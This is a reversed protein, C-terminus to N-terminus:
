GEERWTAGDRGLMATSAPPGWTGAAYPRPAEPNRELHELVPALWSWAAELEDGRTFLTLQNRLVDMLLREYAEMRSAKFTEHFDLALGVQRLRMGEGPVKVMLSLNLGEDPQLRILLANPQATESMSPFISHPLARFRVLIEAVREPMRKGTRLFFPVGAWRWTNIEAKLAVYTETTSEAAVGTEEHYGPVRQGGINGARYAGRILRTAIDQTSFPRLAEVIKLKEDRVADANLSVPPEMAVICMLQLLHNQLMDRLAGTHDYYGARTGVGIEEAITIQVDSVWERRWLPEFLVNGFRLALLNQVTEKGLYHDIRFLQREEFHQRVHTNIARASALDRGLPKELVLRANGHILKHGALSDVITSFLDPPTALYFVRIIAPDTRLLPGLSAFDTRKKADISAYAVHPLFAQWQAALEDKLKVHEGVKESIFTRFEETSMARHGICVIRFDEAGHNFEGACFRSFLGPVLRRAALDGTGGFVVIDFETISITSSASPASPTIASANM